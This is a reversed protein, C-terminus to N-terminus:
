RPTYSPAVTPIDTSVTVVKRVRNGSGNDNFESIYLNYSSDFACFIPANVAASTAASGDGSSSASGIGAVTSIAGSSITVKRIRHNYRDAIFLNGYSDLIVAHPYFLSASTASVGDGNYSTSGSGAVTTIVGTSATVKRIRHNYYEAIYM